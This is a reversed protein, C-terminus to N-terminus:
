LRRRRRRWRRLNRPPIGPPAIFVVGLAGRRTLTPSSDHPWAFCPRMVSPTHMGAFEPSNLIRGCARVVRMEGGVGESGRRPGGSPSNGSPCSLGGQPTERSPSAKPPLSCMNRYFLGARVRSLAEGRPSFSDLGGGFLPPRSQHPAGGFAAIRWGRSHLSKPRGCASRGPITKAPGPGWIRFQINRRRLQISAFNVMISFPCNCGRFDHLM